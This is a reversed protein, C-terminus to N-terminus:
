KKIRIRSPEKKKEAFSITVNAVLLLMSILSVAGYAYAKKKMVENYYEDAFVNVKDVNKVTPEKFPSKVNYECYGDVIYNDTHPNRLVESLMFERYLDSGLMTYEKTYEYNLKQTNYISSYDLLTPDIVYAEEGNNYTCWAHGYSSLSNTRGLTYSLDVDSYLGLMSALAAYNCCVGYEGGDLTTEILKSNYDKIQSMAVADQYIDEGSIQKNKLSEDYDLADTVYNVIKIIKDEDSTNEDFNFSKIIQELQDNWKELKNYRDESFVRSIVKNNGKVKLNQMLRYIYLDILDYDFHLADIGIEVDINDRLWSIDLEDTDKISDVRLELKIIKLNQLSNIINQEEPTLFKYNKLYLYEVNPTYMLDTLDSTACDIMLNKVLKLNNKTLSLDVSNSDDINKFSYYDREPYDPNFSSHAGNAIDSSVEVPKDRLSNAAAGSSIIAAVLALASLKTRINKKNLM